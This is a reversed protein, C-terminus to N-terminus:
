QFIEDYDTISDRSAKEADRGAKRHVNTNDYRKLEDKLKTRVWNELDVRIEGAVCPTSTASVRCAPILMKARDIKAEPVTITLEMDRQAYCATAMFMTIIVATLISKMKLEEM